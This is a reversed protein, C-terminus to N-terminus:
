YAFDLSLGPGHEEFSLGIKPSSRKQNSSEVATAAFFAEIFKTAVFGGMASYMIAQGAVSWDRVPVRRHMMGGGESIAAGMATALEATEVLTFALGARWDGAYFQGIAGPVPVLSLLAAIAPDRGHDQDMMMPQAMAGAGAFLALVALVIIMKLKQSM